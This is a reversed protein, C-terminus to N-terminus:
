DIPPISGKSVLDISGVSSLKNFENKLICFVIADTGVNGSGPGTSAPSFSGGVAAVVFLSESM